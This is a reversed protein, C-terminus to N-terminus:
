YVQRSLNFGIALGSSFILSLPFWAKWGYAFLKRRTHQMIVIAVPGLIMIEIGMNQWLYDNSLELKGAAPLFGYPFYLGTDSLPWFVPLPFIGMLSDLLLHTFPAAFVAGVSASSLANKLYSKQLCVAICGIVFCYALGHTLRPQLWYGTTWGVIFDFDPSISLVSFFAAITITEKNEFRNKRLGIATAFLAHGLFSSM